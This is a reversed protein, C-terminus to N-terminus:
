TKKEDQKAFYQGLGYGGAQSLSTSLAAWPSTQPISANAVGFNSNSGVVAQLAQLPLQKEGRQRIFEQYQKDAELNQLSRELGGYQFASSIRGQKIAEEGQGAQLALPIASLRRQIYTDYIQALTNNIDQTNRRELDGFQNVTDSGSLNKNFSLDRKLSARSDVANSEATKKYNAYLGNPDLPDYSTGGLFKAIEDQGLTYSEPLGSSTLSNLNSLGTQEPQTLNFNGLSGGYAEGATFNGYKGTDAFSLLSKRAQGQEPTELPTQTVNTSGKGKNALYSALASAGIAAVAQWFNAKRVGTMRRNLLNKSKFEKNFIM